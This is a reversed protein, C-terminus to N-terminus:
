PGAADAGAVPLDVHVPGGSTPVAPWRNGALAGAGRNLLACWADFVATVPIEDVRVSAPPGGVRIVPSGSSRAIWRVPSASGFMVVLPVELAAAAHAPGSDISIMSHARECLAFLQRLGLECAVVARVAAAAEIRRLMALEPSAGCLMIMADPMRGHVLNLLASWREIPWAKDDRNLRRYRERRSCMTRRNGPQVLILPRGHWGRSAIWADCEARESTLVTLRPVLPEGPVPFTHATRLVAEPTREGFRRLQELYHEGPMAPEDDIFVCRTLDVSCLKLLRQVQGLKHDECIYIPGPASHRLLARVQWGAPDLAPPWHRALSIVQAIDSNGRMVAQTWPGTGILVCPRGYRARLFHALSGLLIMDGLAGLRIIVPRLRLRRSASM